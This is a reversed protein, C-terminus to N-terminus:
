GFLFELDAESLQKVLGDDSPVISASLERKQEQLLLIKEEVTDRAILRYAMVPRTQGIRHARDIAQAEIAPNWWPDLLFVYDAGTLNLGLGGAKLSILFLGITEDEQFAKVRVERDRTRGDLYAYRVGRADLHERVYSLLRTFQSFVLARHGEQLIEDLREFLVDLKASGAGSYEAGVLGPHCAAQRLRLLAELVHIKSRSLGSVAVREGVTSRFHALLKDYVKRQSADMACHVIQEVRAPLEPAVAEKTRRLVFPRVARTLNERTDDDLGKRGMARAFAQSAGLMGPNLFEFLSWLEGLHNQVPTGSLALRHRAQLLRVVKASESSSNKVAHAEDLVVYDFLMDKFWGIDRRLTGYTVLVIDANDFTSAERGRLAGTHDVVRLEPTFRSAEDMWNFVLSRPVVVLSPAQQLGRARRVDLHALVQVTKGLGMDDALCGGCACRELFELWGLGERQYQRLEGVFSPAPDKPALREVESLAARAQAFAADCDVPPQTSLWAEVLGIQSRTFRVHDDSTEGLAAALGHRGLWEEPLLGVTGDGLVISTDGRSVARWVDALALEVGEFDVTGHLEFWDIGSRIVMGTMRARRYLRGDAEVQWGAATLERVLRPLDRPRVDLPAGPRRDRGPRVGAAMLHELAEHERDRDRELIARVSDAWVAHVDSAAEVVADGYAFALVAELQDGGLKQPDSARVRLVPRPVGQQRSVGLSEPLSIRLAKPVRALEAMLRGLDSVPVPLLPRDALLAAWRFAGHDDFTSARDPWVVLGGALLFEVSKLPVRAEGRTLVAGLLLTSGDPTLESVLEFSWAPGDDWVLPAGLQGTATALTCRGTRCMLPLVVDWVEPGLQYQSPSGAGPHYYAAGRLVGIITTDRPDSPSLYSGARPKGWEGNVKRDRVVITVGLTPGGGPLPGVVYWLQQAPEPPPAPADEVAALLEYWSSQRLAGFRAPLSSGLDGVGNGGTGRMAATDLAFTRAHRPFGARDTELLVGWLHKCAAGGHFSPCTCAGLFVGTNADLRLTVDYSASGRVHALVRAEDRHLLHVRRDQVYTRGRNRTAANFQGAISSPIM